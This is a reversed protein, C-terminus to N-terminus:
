LKLRTGPPDPRVIGGVQNLLSTIELIYRNAYSRILTRDETTNPARLSGLDPNKIDDWSRNTLVAALLTYLDGANLAQCYRKVGELDKLVLAQVGCWVPAVCIHM